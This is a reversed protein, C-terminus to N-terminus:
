SLRRSQLVLDRPYLALTKATIEGPDSKSRFVSTKRWYPRKGCATSTVDYPSKSTFLVQIEYRNASLKQCPKYRRYPTALLTHSSARGNWCFGCGCCGRGVQSHIQRGCIDGLSLPTTPPSFFLSLRLGRHPDSGWEAVPSVLRRPQTSGRLTLLAGRRLATCHMARPIKAQYKTHVNQIRRHFTDYLCQFM